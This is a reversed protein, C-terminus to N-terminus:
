ASAETIAEAIMDGIQDTGLGSHVSLDPIRGAGLVSEVATEILKAAKERGLAEAPSEDASGMYRAMMAGALIAALPNVVNKGAFPPASGHVPEFMSVGEPNINGSAAIGIGGQVSAGLDTIIDGFMNCTVVTDLKEPAEVMLMCCADVYYADRAVDPYEQGVEEFVRRWLGHGYTLVNAKDVLALRKEPRSRALEFAWRVCRETGKRTYIATQQAVEDPAGQKLIGGVGTYLCETNERVVVFDIDEPRKDRLPTAVGPYLKVPRLNIYQDFEFRLRLLLGKELIGPKVDPHGVAGLFIADFGRLEELIGESIPEGTRLYHDKGLGYEHRDVKLGVRGLAVDLCKMAERTVEPGIGDGPITALRYSM